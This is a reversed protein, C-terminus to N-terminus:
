PLKFAYLKDNPTGGGFNSYGSGWYVEGNSVAAGSLCSGGSSFSWLVEGTAADLAYMMGLSLVSCSFVVGNAASVPGSTDGWTHYSIGGGDPTTRQWLVEGTGADLASWVGRNTTTGDPLLWPKENSNSNATFVKQGDVASGWQLGGATGGPGAQTVWVVAGSGPDLTWYQGSKQGAGVLQRPKGQMEVTFLAAGQGFDYDPGAPSPCNDGDGFFPICDVTWADYPLARTAWEIAGTNYDLAVVSDFHDDAAICAQIAAPDSGAADVCALVGAPVSYNNGTAVYVQKRKTDIAPASGWIASGSYGEPAMYTKWKIAGTDVDVALLSGRFECCVYGPVFAALAEEQSAVGVYVTRDHVTASQTVLASFHTDLQTVWQVAGTYKDFAILKGGPGGGPAFISGQTGVIVKGDFVVPTARAKDYPIGTVAAISTSWVLQGTKRDLAYLNGAWDPFYVKSGDVAPTASVDGATTFAWKVTLGAVTAVSIKNENDQNRTNQRDHGFSTWNNDAAASGVVLMGAAAVAAVFSKRVM